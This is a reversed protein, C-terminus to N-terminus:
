ISYTRCTNCGVKLDSHLAVENRNWKFMGLVRKEDHTIGGDVEPDGGAELIEIACDSHCAVIVHDYIEFQGNATTLM